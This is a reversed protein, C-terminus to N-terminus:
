MTSSNMLDSIDVNEYKVEVKFKFFSTTFAAIMSLGGCIASYIIFQSSSTIQSEILNFVLCTLAQCGNYVSYPEANNNFEFGLM